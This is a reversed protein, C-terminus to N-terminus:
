TRTHLIDMKMEKETSNSNGKQNRRQGVPNEPIHQKTEVHRYMKWSKRKINIELKMGNYDSFVSPKIKITRFKRHSNQGIEPDIRSVTGHASSFLTYEAVTPHSHM